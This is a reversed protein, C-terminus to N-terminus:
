FMPPCYLPPPLIKSDDKRQITADAIWENIFKTKKRKGTEPNVKMYSEHEYANILDTKNFIKYGEFKEDGNPLETIRKFYNATNIIKTHTEKLNEKWILYAQDTNSSQKRL